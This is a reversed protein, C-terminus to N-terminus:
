VEARRLRDNLTQAAFSTSALASNEIHTGKEAPSAATQWARAAMKAPSIM